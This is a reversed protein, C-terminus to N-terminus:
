LMLSYYSLLHHYRIPTALICVRMHRGGIFHGTKSSTKMTSSPLWITRCNSMLVFCHEWCQASISAAKGKPEVNM